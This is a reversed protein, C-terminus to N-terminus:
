LLLIQYLSCFAHQLLGVTQAAPLKDSGGINHTSVRLEVHGEHRGKEVFVRSESFWLVLLPNHLTLM